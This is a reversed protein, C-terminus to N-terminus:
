FEGQARPRAQLASLAGCELLDQVRLKLKVLVDVPFKEKPHDLMDRWFVTPNVGRTLRDVEAFNPHTFHSTFFMREWADIDGAQDEGPCRANGVCVQGTSWVNFFPAQYLATAPEPQSDNDIAFVYLARGDNLFVLGPCPCVGRGDFTGPNHPSKKFFLSRAKPPSWWLVRGMGKALVRPSNWQMKPQEKPAMAKVLSRYDDETLPSGPRVTPRGDLQQVPHKTAFAHQRDENTYVLVAATLKYGDGRNQVQFNM